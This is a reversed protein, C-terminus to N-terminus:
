KNEGSLLIHYSLYKSTMEEKKFKTNNEYKRLEALFPIFILHIFAVHSGKEKCSITLTTDRVPREAEFLKSFIFLSKKKQHVFGKM